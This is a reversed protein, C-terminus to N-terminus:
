LSTMITKKLHRIGVEKFNSDSLQPMQFKAPQYSIVLKVFYPFKSDWLYSINKYDRQLVQDLCDVANFSQLRIAKPFNWLIHLNSFWTVLFSTMIIDNGFVISFIRVDSFGTLNYIM